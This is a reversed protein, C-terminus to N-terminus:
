LGDPASLHNIEEELEKLWEVLIDSVDVPIGPTSLWRKVVEEQCHLELHKELRM